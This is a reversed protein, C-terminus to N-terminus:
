AGSKTIQHNRSKAIEESAAAEGRAKEARGTKDGRRAEEDSGTEEEGSAQAGERDDEEGHEVL